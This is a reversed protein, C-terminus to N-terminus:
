RAEDALPAIRNIYEWIYVGLQVAAGGHGQRLVWRNPRWSGERYRRLWYECRASPEPPPETWYRDVDDVALPKHGWPPATM